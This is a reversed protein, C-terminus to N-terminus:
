KTLIGEARLMNQDCRIYQECQGSLQILAEVQRMSASYDVARVHCGAERCWTEILM